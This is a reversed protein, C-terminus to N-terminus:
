GSADGPRRRARYAGVLDAWQGNIKLAWEIAERVAGDGGRGSTVFKAVRKIEERANAVAAPYGVTRLVELDPLDDGVFAIESLEAAHRAALERLCALKDEVGQHIEAVGLERGRRDVADCRRGTIIFPTIGALRLLTIGMGDHAHFRKLELNGDGYAIGGDTLVGDVDMGFMRIKIPDTAM